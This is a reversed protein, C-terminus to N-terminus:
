IKNNKFYNKLKVLYFERIKRLFIKKKLKQYNNIEIVEHQNITQPHYPKKHSVM